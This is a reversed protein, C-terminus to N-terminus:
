KIIIPINLDTDETIKFIFNAIDLAQPPLEEITNLPFFQNNIDLGIPLKTRNVWEIEELESISNMKMKQDFSIRSKEICQQEFDIQDIYINSISFLEIGKAPIHLLFIQTKDNKQYIDLIKFYSHANITHLKWKITDPNIQYLPAAKNTAIIFRCNKTLKGAYDSVDVFIKSRVILGIEYKSIIDKPLQSDRYFMTLGPFTWNLIEEIQETTYNFEM